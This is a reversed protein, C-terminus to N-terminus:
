LETLKKNCEDVTIKGENILFILMAAMAEAQTPFQHLHNDKQKLYTDGSPTEMVGWNWYSVNWWSKELRKMSIHDTECKGIELNGISPLYDPLMLGLEAVTYASYFDTAIALLPLTKSHASVLEGESIWAFFSIQNIGLEKLKKSQESTCVQWSILNNM